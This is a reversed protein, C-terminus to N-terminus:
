NKYYDVCARSRLYPKILERVIRQHDPHNAYANLADMDSVRAELMLDYQENPNENIFVELANLAPISSPLVELEKKISQLHAAKEADSTFGDFAFLVIHHLM